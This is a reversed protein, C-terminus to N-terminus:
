DPTKYFKLGKFFDYNDRYVQLGTLRDYADRVRNLDQYIGQPLGDKFAESACDLIDKLDKVNKDLESM